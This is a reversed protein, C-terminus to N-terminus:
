SENNVYSDMFDDLQVNLANNFFNCALMLGALVVLDVKAADSLFSLRNFIEDPIRANNKAMAQGFKVLADEESTLEFDDPDIGSDVLHKRFYVSCILCDTESSVAHVFIITAQKGVYSAVKDIMPYLNFISECAIPSLALTRKMTTMVGFREMQEDWVATSEPPLDEYKSPQIRPRIGVAADM